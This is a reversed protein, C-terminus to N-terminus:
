GRPIVEPSFLPRATNAETPAAIDIQRLANFHANVGDGHLALHIDGNFVVGARGPGLGNISLGDEGFRYAIASVGLLNCLAALVLDVADTNYERNHVYNELDSIIDEAPAFDDYYDINSRSETVLGECLEEHTLTGISELTLCKEVAYLLCHGDGTVNIVERGMTNMTRNINGWIDTSQGLESTDNYTETTASTISQAIDGILSTEDQSNTLLM